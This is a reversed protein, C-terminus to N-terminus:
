RPWLESYDRFPTQCPPGNAHFYRWRDRDSGLMLISASVTGFGRDTHVCPSEDPGREGEHTALVKGLREIVAEDDLASLNEWEPDLARRMVEPKRDRGSPDGPSQNGLSFIPEEISRARLQDTSSAWHARGEADALLLLFPNTRSADLRELRALAGELNQTQLLERVIGGRSLRHPDPPAGTWQNTLGIVLGERNAGLWTGGAEEDRGALFPVPDHWVRPPSSPRDKREDRNAAVILRPQDRDPRLISLTCM